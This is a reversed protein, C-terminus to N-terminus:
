FILNTAFEIAVIVGGAVWLAKDHSNIRGECKTVRGNTREVQNNISDLKIHVTELKADLIKEFIQSDKM